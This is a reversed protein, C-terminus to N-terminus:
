LAQRPSELPRLIMKMDEINISNNLTLTIEFRVTDGPPYLTHGPPITLV